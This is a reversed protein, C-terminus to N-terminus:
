INCIVFWKSFTTMNLQYIILLSLKNLRLVTWVKGEKLYKVLYIQSFM